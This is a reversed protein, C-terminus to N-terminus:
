RDGHKDYKSRAHASTGAMRQEPTLNAHSKVDYGTTEMLKLISSHKREHAQARATFAVIYLRVRTGETHVYFKYGDAKPQRRAEQARHLEENLRACWTEGRARFMSVLEPDKRMDVFGTNNLRVKFSEGVRFQRGEAVM